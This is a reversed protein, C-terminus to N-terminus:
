IILYCTHFNIKSDDDEIIAKAVSPSVFVSTSTVAEQLTAQFEEVVETIDDDVLTVNVDLRTVTSSFTLQVTTPQYDEPAVFFPVFIPDYCEVWMVSLSYIDRYVL